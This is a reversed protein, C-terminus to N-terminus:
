NYAVECRRFACRESKVSKSGGAHWGSHYRRWNCFFITSDEIACDRSLRFGPGSNGGWSFDCHRAICNKSENFSFNSFPSIFFKCKEIIIRESRLVDGRGHYFNIGKVVIDKAYKVQLTNRLTLEWPYWSPQGSVYIFMERTEPKFYYTDPFLDKENQGIAMKKLYPMDNVKTDAIRRYPTKGMQILVGIDYEKVGNKEKCSLYSEPVKTKWLRAYAQPYPENGFGKGEIKEWKETYLESGKVIVQENPANKFTIPKNPTGSVTISMLERYVGGKIYVTDGPKLEKAGGARNLTKWPASKTGPNTDSAKPNCQSVYYTKGTSKKKNTTVCGTIILILSSVFIASVISLQKL